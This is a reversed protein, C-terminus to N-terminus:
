LGPLSLSFFLASLVYLSIIVWIKWFNIFVNIQVDFFILLIHYVWLSGYRSLLLEAVSDYDLISQQFFCSFLGAHVPNGMWILASKEDSWLPWFASPHCAWQASLFPGTVLFEVDLLVIRWSCVLFTAMELSIFSLFETGTTWSILFILLMGEPCKVTIWIWVFFHRIGTLIVIYTFIYPYM